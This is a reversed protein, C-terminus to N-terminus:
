DDRRHFQRLSQDDGRQRHALEVSFTEGSEALYDTLAQISINAFTAGPPITGNGSPINQYDTGGTATGSVTRFTFQTPQMQPQSLTAQVTATGGEAVHLGSPGISLMALLARDEFKEVVPKRFRPVPRNLHALPPGQLLARVGAREWLSLPFFRALTQRWLSLKKM